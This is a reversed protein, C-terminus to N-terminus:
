LPVLMKMSSDIERIEKTMTADKQLLEALREQGMVQNSWEEVSFSSSDIDYSHDVAPGGRGSAAGGGGSSGGGEGSGGTAATTGYYSSLMMQLPEMGGSSDDSSDDSDFM